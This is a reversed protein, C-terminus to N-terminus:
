SKIPIKNLTNHLIVLFRIPKGSPRCSNFNADRVYASQIHLALRSKAPKTVKFFIDYEVTTGNERIIEVSFYNGHGTHRCKRQPLDRVIEPLRKSLEYRDFDFLRTESPDSYELRKDYPGSEPLRRSFCHLSFTVDMKFIVAPKEHEAAREFEMACPHLHTLDFTKQGHQFASWQM